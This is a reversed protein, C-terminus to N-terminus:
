LNLNYYLLISFNLEFFYYNANIIYLKFTLESIRSHIEQNNINKLNADCYYSM